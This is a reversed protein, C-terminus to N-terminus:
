NEEWGVGLVVHVDRGLAPEDPQHTGDSEQDENQQDNAENLPASSPLVWTLAGRLLKQARPNLIRLNGPALAITSPESVCGHNCASEERRLPSM